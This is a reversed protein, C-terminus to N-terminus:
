YLKICTFMAILNKDHRRYFMGFLCHVRFWNIFIQSVTILYHLSFHVLCVNPFLNLKPGITAMLMAMSVSFSSNLQCSTVCTYQWRAEAVRCLTSLTRCRLGWVAQWMLVYSTQPCRWTWAVTRQCKYTPCYVLVQQWMVLPRTVIQLLQKVM